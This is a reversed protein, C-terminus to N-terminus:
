SLLSLFLFLDCAVIILCLLLIPGVYVEVDFTHVFFCVWGMRYTCTHCTKKLSDCKLMVLM